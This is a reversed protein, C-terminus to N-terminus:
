RQYFSAEDKLVRTTLQDDTTKTIREYLREPIDTKLITERRQELITKKKSKEKVTSATTPKSLPRKRQNPGTPEAEDEDDSIEVGFLVEKQKKPAEPVVEPVATQEEPEHSVRGGM